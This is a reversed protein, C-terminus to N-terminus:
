YPTQVSCQLMLATLFALAEHASCIRCKCTQCQQDQQGRTHASLIARAVYEGFDVMEHVRRRIEVKADPGDLSQEPHARRLAPLMGTEAGSRMPRARDSCM